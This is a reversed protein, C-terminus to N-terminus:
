RRRRVVHASRRGSRASIHPRREGAAALAAAALALSGLGVSAVGTWGWREWAVGPLYAGLAGAGYYTSFYLASASGRDALAADGVGLQTATYGAFMAAAVLALGPVVLPLRDSLTLLLGMASAALALATLRRWGVRDAARGALPGTLGLLWLVFVLSAAAASYSFPPQELRYVVYTFTGVFAFFLSGGAVAVALLRGNLLHRLAGHGRAPPPPEPLSGRMAAAAALPLVVLFGIAARWGVLSGALAVGLRGLLGGAVLASVYYGMARSGIRPVFAEVVYPAGVALLGPMCLGQLARFALLADFGPALAVGITPPVLLLSALRITRTRGIRDSVPGWVWGGLAVAGVVVSVSLGARSPSVGFDRSLEPLIAQTSYMTAFMGAAGLMFGALARSVPTM